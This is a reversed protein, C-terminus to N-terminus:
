EVYIIKSNSNSKKIIDYQYDTWDNQKASYSSYSLTSHVEKSFVTSAIYYFEYM